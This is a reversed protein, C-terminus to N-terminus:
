RKIDKKVAIEAFDRAHEKCSMKGHVHVYVKDSRDGWIISPINGIKINQIKMSVESQQPM